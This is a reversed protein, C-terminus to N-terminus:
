WHVLVQQNIKQM